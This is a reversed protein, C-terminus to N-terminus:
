PTEEVAPTAQDQFQAEEKLEKGHEAVAAEAQKTYESGAYNKQLVAMTKAVADWDKLAVYQPVAGALCRAENNLIYPHFVVLYLYDLIADQARGKAARAVARAYYLESLLNLDDDPITMTDIAALVDDNRGLKVYCLALRMPLAEAQSVTYKQRKLDEYIALAGKWDDSRELLRAQLMLAEDVPVGPLDRYPRLIDSVRQLASRVQAIQGTTTAQDVSDFVRPRPVEINVLDTLVVGSEVFQGSATQQDIWLTTEDRKLLRAPVSGRKTVVTVPGFGREPRAVVPAPTQAHSPAAGLTACSLLGILLVKSTTTM